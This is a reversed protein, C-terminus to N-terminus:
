LLLSCLILGSTNSPSKNIIVKQKVYAFLKFGWPQWGSSETPADKWSFSKCLSLEPTYWCNELLNKPLKLFLFSQVKHQAKLYTLHNTTMMNTARAKCHDLRRRQLNYESTKYTFINNLFSNRAKDKDPSAFVSVSPWSPSLPSLLKTLLWKNKVTYCLYQHTLRHLQSKAKQVIVVTQSQLHFLNRCGESPQLM